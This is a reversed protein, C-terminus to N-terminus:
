SAATIDPIDRPVLELCPLSMCAAEVQQMSSVFPPFFPPLCSLLIAGPQGFASSQCSVVSSKVCLQVRPHHSSFFAPHLYKNININICIHVHMSRPPISSNSGSLLKPSFTFRRLYEVKPQLYCM